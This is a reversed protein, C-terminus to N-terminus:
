PGDSNPVLKANPKTVVSTAVNSQGKLDMQISVHISTSTPEKASSEWKLRQSLLTLRTTLSPTNRWGRISLVLASFSSEFRSISPHSGRLLARLGNSSLRSASRKSQKQRILLQTGLRRQAVPELRVNSQEHKMVPKPEEDRKPWELLQLIRLTLGKIGHRRASCLTTKVRASKPSSKVPRQLSLATNRASSVKSSSPSSSGKAARDGVQERELCQVGLGSSAWISRWTSRSRWDMLPDSTACLCRYTTYAM